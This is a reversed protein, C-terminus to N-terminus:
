HKGHPNCEHTQLFLNGTGRLAKHGGRYDCKVQIREGNVGVIDSGKRQEIVNDVERVPILMGQHGQYIMDVLVNVAAQGKTSEDAHESVMRARLIDPPIRVSHCGPIDCPQVLVGRATTINGQRATAPRGKALSKVGDVTRYIYVMGVRFCVHARYDTTESQIGYEVMATNM